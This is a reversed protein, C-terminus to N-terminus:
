EKGIQWYFGKVTPIRATLGTIILDTYMKDNYKIGIADGSTYVRDEQFKVKLKGDKLKADSMKGILWTSKWKIDIEDDSLKKISKVLKIADKPINYNESLEKQTFTQGVKCDALIKKIYFFSTDYNSDILTQPSLKVSKNVPTNKNLITSDVEKKKYNKSTLISRKIVKISDKKKAKILTDNHEARAPIITTEIAEKDEEKDNKGCSFLFLVIFVFFIKKYFKM